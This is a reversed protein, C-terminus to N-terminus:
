QLSPTHKKTQWELYSTQIVHIRSSIERMSMRESPSPTTCSLAVQALSIMCQYVGNESTVTEEASEVKCEEVLHADIVSLLQQPVNSQVFSIIDLGDKFMPDTPRKGTLIELLVIGFSYVDGSTSTYGGGAYESLFTFLLCICPNCIQFIYIKLNVM